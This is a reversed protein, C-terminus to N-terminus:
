DRQGFPPATSPCSTIARLAARARPLPTRCVDRCCTQIGHYGLGLVNGLVLIAFAINFAPGALLVAIRAVHSASPLAHSIRARPGSRESM